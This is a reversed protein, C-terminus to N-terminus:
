HWHCSLDLPYCKTCAIFEKVQQVQGPWMADFKNKIVPSGLLLMEYPQNYIANYNISNNHSQMAEHGKCYASSSFGYSELLKTLQTEYTVVASLLDDTDGISSWFSQFASSNVVPKSFVMFFSQVHRPITQNPLLQAEPRDSNVIEPFISIGWFDCKDNEMSTFIHEWPVFPGLCSSNALILEDYAAIEDYGIQAIADRWAGFDL